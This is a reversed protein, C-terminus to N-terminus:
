VLFSESILETLTRYEKYDYSFLDSYHLEDLKMVFNRSVRLIGYGMDVIKFVIFLREGGKSLYEMFWPPQTKKFLGKLKKDGSTGIELVKVEVLSHKEGHILLADPFGGGSVLATRYGHPVQQMFYQQFSRENSM